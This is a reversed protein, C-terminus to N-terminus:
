KWEGQLVFGAWYYPASWAKQQLMELQAARLAKAPRDGRTLMAEYFHRMLDATARDSVSWLSVAVRAAGAYMFGRTLGVLGEGKIAKGLGTECASLVVLEAPLNLNYIEHARLFGEQTHGGEDVMALVLASLDPRETDLYGHTAFHVYRYNALEPSMATARSANFGMATLHSLGGSVSEIAKAELATFPLRPITRTGPLGPPGAFHELLRTAAPDVAPLERVTAAGKVLRDDSASFVPDAIIAVGKSAAQRGALALRQVALASASPINVIEADAILPRYGGTGALTLMAFPVYQLAGDAVVVIRGHGLDAALPALVLRSLDQVAAPTRRDARDIRAQRQRPAEGRAATSRATVLAYLDRAAKEIEAQPPLEYSRLASSTVAWAYSRERGLSYEVLVTDDDLLRQIAPVSLPQPQVLDAFAPSAQRIEARVQEYEAELDALETNFADARVQGAAGAPLAMLRGAKANIRQSLQREQDILAPDVGRRIDVRAETLMELLSRARARESSELAAAAHGASPDQRHLRMAIEMSLLYAEQQSALYSARLAQSVVSSRVQELQSVARAISERAEALDGAEVQARALGQLARSENQSDGVGQLLGISERYLAIANAPQGQLTRTAALSNLTIAVQRRDNGARYLQLAAEYNLASKALDGLTAYADGLGLLTAAQGRPDGVAKRLSLAQDYARLAQDTQGLRLYANALRGTTDAEGAKDGATRRLTLARQYYTVSTEVNGLEAQVVGM